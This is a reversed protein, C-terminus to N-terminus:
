DGRSAPSTLRHFLEFHRRAFDDADAFAAIEAIGALVADRWSSPSAGLRALGEQLFRRFLAPFWGTGDIAYAVGAGWDGSRLVPHGPVRRGARTRRDLFLAYMLGFRALDRVPEGSIAAGEWDVVGSVRNASVLVNGIWLDGHVTTRPVSNRRLNAYIEALRDLDDRVGERDSFRSALRTSVGADMELPASRGATRRQLEAIWSEVVGFDAAVTAPRATHRFRLYSTKMPVGDMATTVIGSRGEFEVIEVIRPIAGSMDRGIAELELLVQAEAAVARAAADTTPVKAALVLRGTAPSVLLVTIKANPNKSDCVVLSRLGTRAVYEWLPRCEPAGEGTLEPLTQIAAAAARV